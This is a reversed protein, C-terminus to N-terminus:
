YMNKAVYILKVEFLWNFSTNRQFMTPGLLRDTLLLALYHALSDRIQVKVLNAHACSRLLFTKIRKKFYM